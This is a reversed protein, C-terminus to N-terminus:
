ARRAASSALTGAAVERLIKALEPRCSGCNTGARLAIGIADVSTAGRERVAQEIRSRDVGFCACVLAGTESEGAPPRGALLGMREMASLTARALLSSLWARSVTPAAPGVFVCGELRGNRVAAIRHQGLRPDRYVLWELDVGGLGLFARAWGEADGLAQTGALEYRWGQPIAARTWYDADITDAPRRLLAVGHWQAAFPALAVPTHKLEPQGSVPDCAPNVVAGARGRRAFQDNWHMPAFVSGRCQEDSVRARVIMEGWPSAVCILAGDEVRSAAADAPHIAAIPEAVHESLRPSWGTRTMTHWHDRVRGTNLALAYAGDPANAPARPTVPVFRARGDATPFRGDAFLRATGAPRRSTVPWQLPPLSDYSEDDLRALASIDFVRSGDNEFGSLAAHERFIEAPSGYGFAEGFGMRAAVQCIIWWDPRAEAPRPLFSRQRSIRRESNTVTGDKEGWGLAPLLVHALAATDTRRVCDSVVVLECRALAARVRDADPLSVVPNTGMIWVAKVAGRGIAEFLDVAKLGPRAAITQARWFRQVLDRHAPNEIEMHAALQNALGGVERGGMANPQGTLSFPGTGPRGIRRTLLHCNIIANVKDTGSTSQNIGQSYLTVVKETEGFWEFFRTVSGIDLGCMRAVQDPGFAAAAQLAAALGEAGHDLASADRGLHTLLGNFLVADSGPRLPLHLDAEGATVTRRPDICVIRLAPNNQRAAIIRQYLVPHCWAANSGVFVVLDALELDEYNGPVVDEGFARKHGAVSSAMCLRSNTDINATGVFGKMLKNAVYYDETLLQGSVYLAVADPGHDRIVQTFKAAVRDIATDWDVERGDVIPRLLRPELSLTEGLAAGKSCLRGFNAPHAVDGSIAAGGSADPRAVIGCGVGCYPCTTKVSATV